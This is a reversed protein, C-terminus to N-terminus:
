RAAVDRRDVSRGSPPRTPAPVQWAGWLATYNRSGRLLDEHPGLATREGDLLLVTGARTASSLRHAVVVLTGGRRRFASEVVAETAPDLHCTAEDLIVVEAASVYVRILAVLQRQGASLDGVPADLGGALLEGAGLAEAATVLREDPCSPALYSLNERLTGTFVYAQQPILALVSGLSGARVRGVDVTGLTVAGQEPTIVGALLGALTSKGAGSPGVVALHAGHPITLDFRDLVPEAYRGYRFSVGSLVLDLGRLLVDGSRRAPPPLAALAAIRRLTVVLRLVSLGLTQVLTRLAPQVATTLYAVAAVVEGASLTGAAVMGPAATLVLVLPLAGGLGVLAIRLAGVAALTRGADAQAEVVAGLEARAAETTRCAVLDRLGTLMREAAVATDEDALVVRRQQRLLAHLLAAFLAVTVLVPGAVLLALQGSLTGLGAIAALTVVVFSRGQVLLGATVDRVIEVHRTIAAVAAASSGTREPDAAGRHLVGRVIATVLVDRVPEVVHALAAFCGRSGLAGVLAVAAFVGLWAAGTAWRGVGFGQDVAQGLLRAGLFAPAAELVSCLALAALGRRQALV